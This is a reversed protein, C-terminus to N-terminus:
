GCFHCRSYIGVIRVVSDSRGIGGHTDSDRLGTLAAIALHDTMQDANLVNFM